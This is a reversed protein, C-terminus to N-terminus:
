NRTNIYWKIGYYYKNNKRNKWAEEFGDESLYAENNGWLRSFYSNYIEMPDNGTPILHGKVLWHLRNAEKLFEDTM